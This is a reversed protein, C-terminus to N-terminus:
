DGFGFPAVAAVILGVVIMGGLVQEPFAFLLAVIPLGYLGSSNWEGNHFGLLAGIARLFSYAAWCLLALAILFQILM